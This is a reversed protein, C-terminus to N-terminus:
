FSRIRVATIRLVPHGQLNVIKMDSPQWARVIWAGLSLLAVTLVLLPAIILRFKPKKM